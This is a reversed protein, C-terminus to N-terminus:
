SGELPLLLFELAGQLEWPKISDGTAGTQKSSPQRQVRFNLRDAKTLTYVHVPMGTCM